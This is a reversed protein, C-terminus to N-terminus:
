RSRVEKRKLIDPDLRVARKRAEAARDKQGSKEFAVSANLQVAASDPFRRVAEEALPLAADLNGRSLYISLLNLYSAPHNPDLRRVNEFIGAAGTPDHAEMLTRGLNNMAGLHNPDLNLAHRYCEVARAYNKEDLELNGQNFWAATDNPTLALVQLGHRRALNHENRARYSKFLITHFMPSEQSVQLTALGLSLNDRWDANRVWTRTLLALTVVTAGTWMLRRARYRSCAWVWIAAAGAVIGASPTYLVREAKMLGIAFLLNSTPLLTGFFLCVGWPVTPLRRWTLLAIVVLGALLLLAAPVGPALLHRAIPVDGVAYDALLTKPFVLLHVYEAEIRLATLVRDVAPVQAWGPHGLPSLVAGARLGVFLGAVGALAAMSLMAFPRGRLLARREPVLIETLVIVAPALIGGEKSFAGVAYALVTGAALWGARRWHGANAEEQARFYWWVTLALGLFAQLEARGVVNAVAEVHVPHVAFWLATILAAPNRCLLWTLHLLVWCCGVHLLVNVLHYGAPHLGNLKYNLAYSLLTLPRYLSRGSAGWYNERFFQPTNSLRQIRVSEKILPIDDLSFDYQLTQLYAVAALTLVLWPWWRPLPPPAPTASAPPPVTAADPGSVPQSPLEPSAVTPTAERADRRKRKGM